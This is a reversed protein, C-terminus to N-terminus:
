RRCTDDLSIWSFVCHYMGSGSDDVIGADILNKLKAIRTELEPAIIDATENRVNDPVLSPLLRIDIQRSRPM